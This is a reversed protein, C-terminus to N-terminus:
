SNSVATATLTGDTGVTIDYVVDNADKLQIKNVAHNNAAYNNGISNFLVALTKSSADPFKDAPASRVTISNGNLTNGSQTNINTFSSYDLACRFQLFEPGTIPDKDYKSVYNFLITGSFNLLRDAIKYYINNYLIVEPQNGNAFM